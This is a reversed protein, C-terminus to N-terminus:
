FQHFVGIGFHFTPGTYPEWLHLAKAHLLPYSYEIDGLPLVRKGAVEAVVSIARGRPYVAPDLFQESFVLFRGETADTHIPRGRSDLAKQLIELYSGEKMSKADVIVGGVMVWIGKYKEPNERLDRFSISRDVKELVQKPFPSACSMTGLVVALLAIIKGTYKARNM